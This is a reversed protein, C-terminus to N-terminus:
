GEVDSWRVCSPPQRSEPVWNAIKNLTLKNLSVRPTLPLPVSGSSFAALNGEPGELPGSRHCSQGRGRPEVWGLVQRGRGTGGPDGRAPSGPATPAQPSFCLSRSWLSQLEFGDRGQQKVVLCWAKRFRWRRPQFLPSSFCHGGGSRPVTLHSRPLVHSTGLSSSARLFCRYVPTKAALVAIVALVVVRGCAFYCGSQLSLASLLSGAPLGLGQFHLQSLLKGKLLLTLAAALFSVM